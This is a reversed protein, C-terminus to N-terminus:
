RLNPVVYRGHWSVVFKERWKGQFSLTKEGSLYPELQELVVHLAWMREKQVYHVTQM